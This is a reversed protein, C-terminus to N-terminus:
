AGQKTIHKAFVDDVSLHRAYLSIKQANNTELAKRYAIYHLKNRDQLSLYLPNCSAIEGEIDSLPNSRFINTLLQVALATAYDVPIQTTKNNESEPLSAGGQFFMIAQDLAPMGSHNEHARFDNFNFRILSRIANSLQTDYNGLYQMSENFLLTFDEFSVISARRDKAMIGHLYRVLGHAYNKISPYQSTLTIFREIDSSDFDDGSFLRQFLQDAHELENQKAICFEINVKKKSIDNAYILEVFGDAVTSLASAALEPKQLEHGNIFVQEVFSLEIDDTNLCRTLRLRDELIERGQIRLVPNKVPHELEHADRNAISDFTHSCQRCAYTTPIPNHDSASGREWLRDTATEQIWNLTPM